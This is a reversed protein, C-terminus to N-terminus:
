CAASRKPADVIEMVLRTGAPAGGLGIGAGRSPRGRALPSRQVYVLSDRHARGRSSWSPVIAEVGVAADDGQGPKEGARAGVRARTAAVSSKLAPRKRLRRLARGAAASSSMAASAQSPEAAARLLASSSIANCLGVGTHATELM